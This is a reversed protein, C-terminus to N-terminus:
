INKRFRFKSFKRGFLSKIFKCIMITAPDLDGPIDLFIDLKQYFFISIKENQEKEM